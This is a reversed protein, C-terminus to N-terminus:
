ALTKTSTLVRRGVYVPPRAAEGLDEDDMSCLIMSMFAGLIRPQHALAAAQVSSEAAIAIAAMTIEGGAIGVANAPM